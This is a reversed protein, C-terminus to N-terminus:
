DITFTLNLGISNIHKPTGSRNDKRLYFIDASTNSGFKKSFGASFENSSFRGASIDYFPENAVFPAFLETVDKKVPIKLTTKNRFRVSDSRSHRIRYEVRNRNKLSFQPWKKEFEVDFRLRHEFEKRGRAPQGARYLYVPTISIGQRVNWSIGAGIREDVPAFRNQGFRLTGIVILSLKTKPKKGPETTKIVPIKVATEHWFQFDTEGTPTQSAATLPLLVFLTFIFIAPYVRRRKM